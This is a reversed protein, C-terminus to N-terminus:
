KNYKPLSQNSVISFIFIIIDFQLLNESEEDILRLSSCVIM